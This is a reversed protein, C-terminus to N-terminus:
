FTIVPKDTPAQTSRSLFWRRLSITRHEQGLASSTQTHQALSPPRGCSHVVEPGGPQPLVAKVNQRAKVTQSAGVRCWARLPPTALLSVPGPRLPNTFGLPFGRHLSPPIFTCFVAINFLENQCLFSPLRRTLPTVMYFCNRDQQTTKRGSFRIPTIVSIHELFAEPHM